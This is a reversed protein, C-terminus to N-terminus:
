KVWNWPKPAFQQLLRAEGPTPTEGMGSKLGARELVEHLVGGPKPSLPAGSARALSAPAKWGDAMAQYAEGLERGAGGAAEAGRMAGGVEPILASGIALPSTLGRLGELAGAGFGRLRAEGVGYNGAPNDILDQTPKIAAKSILPSTLFDIAGPM